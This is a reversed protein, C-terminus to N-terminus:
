ILIKYGIEKVNQFKISTKKKLRSVFIYLSNGEKEIADYIEEFSVIEKNLFLYLFNIEKSNLPTENIDIEYNKIKFKKPFINEIKYLIEEPFFPKKIFDIAGKQYAKNINDLSSNGTIIIVKKNKLIEILELGNIDPLDIDVLYLDSKDIERADYLSIVKYGNKSLFNNLTKNLIKDDEIITIKM